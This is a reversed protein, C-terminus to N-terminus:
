YIDWHNGPDGETAGNAFVPTNYIADLTLMPVNETTAHGDIWSTVISNGHRSFPNYDTQKTPCVKYGGRQDEQDSRVSETMMITASPQKIRTEKIKETFINSNVGYPVYCFTFSDLTFGKTKQSNFASIFAAPGGYAGQKLGPCVLPKASALQGGVILRSAWMIKGSTGAKAKYALPLIGEFDACYLQMSTALQKVNNVCSAQHAKSRANNLAPLLMAALIAIIAIVVLLEILTFLSEKEADTKM